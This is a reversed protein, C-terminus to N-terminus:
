QSESERGQNKKWNYPSFAVVGKMIAAHGQPHLLVVTTGEALLVPHNLSNAFLSWRWPNEKEDSTMVGTCVQRFTTVSKDIIMATDQASSCSISM